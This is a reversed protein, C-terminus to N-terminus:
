QERWVPLENEAEDAVLRSMWVHGRRVCQEALRIISIVEDSDINPWADLNRNITHGLCGIANMMDMRCSGTIDEQPREMKMICAAKKQVKLLEDVLDQQGALALAGHIDICSELIQRAAEYTQNPTSM